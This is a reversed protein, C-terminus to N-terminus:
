VELSTKSTGLADSVSIKSKTPRPLSRFITMPPPVASTSNSMTSSSGNTPHQSWSSVTRIRQIWDDTSSGDTPKLNVRSGSGWVSFSDSNRDFSLKSIPISTRSIYEKAENKKCLILCTEFLFLHRERSKQVGPLVTREHIIVQGQKILESRPADQLLALHMADNAKTPVQEMVSIAEKLKQAAMNSDENSVNICDLISKLLLVYKVMMQVPWILCSQIPQDLNEDKHIKTFYGASKEEIIQQSKEKGKCYDVYLDSIQASNNVFCDALEEIESSHVLSAYFQEHFELLEKMNSFIDPICDKLTSSKQAAPLYSNLAIKLIKIYEKETHILELLLNSKRKDTQNNSSKKAKQFL